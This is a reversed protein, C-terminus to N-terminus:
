QWTSPLSLGRKIIEEALSKKTNSLMDWLAGKDDRHQIPHFEDAIRLYEVQLDDDNLHGVYETECDHENWEPHVPTGDPNTGFVFTPLDVERRTLEEAVDRMEDYACARDLPHEAEIYREAAEEYRSRLKEDNCRRYREQLLTARDKPPNALLDFEKSQEAQEDPTARRFSTGLIGNVEALLEDVYAQLRQQDIDVGQAFEPVADYHVELQQGQAMQRYEEAILEIECYLLTSGPSLRSLCIELHSLLPLLRQLQQSDVAGCCMTELTSGYRNRLAVREMVAFHAFGMALRGEDKLQLFDSALQRKLDEPVDDDRFFEPLSAM